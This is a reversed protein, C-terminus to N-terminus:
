KQYYATTKVGLTDIFEFTFKYNNDWSYNVYGFKNGIKYTLNYGNSGNPKFDSISAGKLQTLAPRVAKAFAQPLIQNEPAPTAPDLNVKGKMAGIVYPYTSTGHYHYIGDDGVHGHCSDLSNMMNGNPEKIGYVAFGDLGYAIPIKSVSENLHLPAAHYHYDDARGCHGGWQDLEGISYSDEGRNNLANFIPIGNIGIAVAGKMLNNKTSLPISAYTPQLPISWSNAGTYAQPIPVQQQWSTIGIMMGHTPIGSNSVYYYTNDSSTAVTSKFLQFSSDLFSIRTKPITIITPTNDIPDAVEKKSCAISYIIFVVVSLVMKYQEVKLSHGLKIFNIPAIQIFFIILVTIITLYFLNPYAPPLSHPLQISPQENIKQIQSIKFKLLLQDQESFKELQIPTTQGNPQELYISNERAFSFNGWIKEGTSLYWHNFLVHEHSKYHGGDHAFSPIKVFWLCCIIIITRM